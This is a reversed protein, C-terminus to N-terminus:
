RDCNVYNEEPATSLPSFPPAAPSHYENLSRKLATSVLEEELSENDDTEPHVASTLDITERSRDTRSADNDDSPALEAQSESMQRHIIHQNTHWAHVM